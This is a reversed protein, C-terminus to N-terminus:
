KGGESTEGEEDWYTAKLEEATWPQTRDSTAERIRAVDEATIAEDIDAFETRVYQAIAAVEDDKLFSNWPPMMGGYIMGDVEIEGQVGHLIISVLQDASHSVWESNTLPPFAGPIGTGDMQHCSMCKGMYLRKGDADPTASPTINFGFLVVAFAMLGLTSSLITAFPRKM